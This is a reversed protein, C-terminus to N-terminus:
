WGFTRRASEGRLPMIDYRGPPRLRQSSHTSAMSKEDEDESWPEASSSPSGQNKYAKILEKKRAQPLTASLLIVHISLARCWSLLRTLEETMYPDYAHVEDVILVKGALGFLRLFGHRVHLVSMLAQDITGVGYTALM